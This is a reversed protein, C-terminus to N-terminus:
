GADRFGKHQVGANIAALEPRRRLLDVVELWGFDDRGPFHSVVQRVFALDEPTDVTWRMRGLDEDHDVRLVRFRGPEDYLYPLVHERQHPRDAERWARELAARTVVETDLGIPYTRGSPLRNAAMDPPPDAQLLAQLTHAIVQPDILPCDATLRVIVGADFAEAAQHFRDLVDTPHGRVCAIGHAACLGAVADDGPDTTTAVGLAHLGPTRRAREVVWLLMPRGGIDALVTGPLRSSAMRAQVIAVVRGAGSM